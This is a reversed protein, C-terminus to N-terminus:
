SYIRCRKPRSPRMPQRGERRIALRPMLWQQARRYLLGYSDCLNRKLFSEVTRWLYKAFALCSLSSCFTRGPSPWRRKRRRKKRRSSIQRDSTTLMLMTSVLPIFRATTELVTVRAQLQGRAQDHAACSFRDKRYRSRCSNSVVTLVPTSPQCPKGPWRAAPFGCHVTSDSSGVGGNM